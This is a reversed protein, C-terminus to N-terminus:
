TSSILKHNTTTLHRLLADDVLHTRRVQGTNEPHVQNPRTVARDREGSQSGDVDECLDEDFVKVGHEAGAAWRSLYRGSVVRFWLVMDPDPDESM